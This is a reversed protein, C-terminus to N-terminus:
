SEGTPRIEVNMHPYNKLNTHNCSSRVLAEDKRKAVHDSEYRLAVLLM